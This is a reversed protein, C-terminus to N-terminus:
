LWLRGSASAVALEPRGDGDMDAAAPAGAVADDPGTEIALGALPSGDARYGVVRDGAAVIVAPAGGVNVGIAPNSIKGGADRPFSSFGAAGVAVALLLANM